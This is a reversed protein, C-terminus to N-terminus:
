SADVVLQQLLATEFQHAKQKDKRQLGNILIAFVYKKDGNVLYGALSSVTALTGTKAYVKGKLDGLFRNTLTGTKGAVPLTDYFIEFSKQHQIKSLLVTLVDATLLDDESMGAGDELQIQSINLKLNNKLIELVASKGAAFSGVGYKKYGLMRFITQAYLNDSQQQMHTLLQSLPQSQHKALVTLNPNKHDVLKIDGSFSINLSDLETRILQQMVKEPNALAFKLTYDGSPFCGKLLLVNEPNVQGDFQCYELMRNNAAVLQNDVTLKEGGLQKINFRDGSSSLSFRASNGNLNFASSPAGYYFILSSQSTNVPYDRNKFAQNVFYIDGQISNVGQQQLQVLLKKMDQTTLSPDGSFDIYLNNLSAKIHPKDTYLTTQFRFNEGLTILAVATTLLKLTSAPMLSKNENYTVITKDTKADLVKVAISAHNLGHQEILTPIDLPKANIPLVTVFSLLVVIIIKKM